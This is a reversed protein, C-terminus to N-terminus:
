NRANKAHELRVCTSNTKVKEMNRWGKINLFIYLYVLLVEEEDDRQVNRQTTNVVAPNCNGFM